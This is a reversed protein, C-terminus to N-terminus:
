HMISFLWIVPAAFLISDLRDLVGGHGPIINGSDKVGCSRKLLSEFLDGLQGLAGVVLAIIMCFITALDPFFLAKFILAGVMSGALGGIAGEISKNPSVAPYLKRKGFRCGLYYASSDGSMVIFMMLFLWKVGNPGGRLMVLYGLLFPVYFFGFLAMGTESAVQRIDDFRFLFYIATALLFLTMAVLLYHWSRIFFLYPIVAGCVAAVIGPIPRQPLAMRCYELFGAFGLLCVFVTFM